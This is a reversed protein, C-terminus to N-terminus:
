DGRLVWFKARAVASRNGAADHAVVMLLYTGPALRRRQFADALSLSRWGSRQPRASRPSGGSNKGAPALAAAGARGGLERDVTGAPAREELSGVTEYRGPSGARV